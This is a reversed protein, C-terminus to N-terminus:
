VPLTPESRRKLSSTLSTLGPKSPPIPMVFKLSRLSPSTMSNKMTSFTATSLRYCRAPLLRRDHGDANEREVKVEGLRAGELVLTLHDAGDLLAEPRTVVDGDALQLLVGVEPLAGRD